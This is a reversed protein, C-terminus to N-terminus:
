SINSVVWQATYLVINNHYITVIMRATSQVTVGTSGGNLNTPDIYYVDIHQKWTSGLATISQLNSDVPPSYNANNLAMVQSYTITLSAEHLNNVLNIATTLESSERSAITGAALLSLLATIAIGVVATVFAAEVLTFGRPSRRQRVHRISSPPINFYRPTM